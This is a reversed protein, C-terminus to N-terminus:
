CLAGAQCPTFYLVALLAGAIGILVAALVDGVILRRGNVHLMWDRDTMPRTDRM